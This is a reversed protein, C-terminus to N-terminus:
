ITHMDSPQKKSVNEMEVKLQIDSHMQQRFKFSINTKMHRRCVSDFKPIQHQPLM